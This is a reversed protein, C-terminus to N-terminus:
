YVHVTMIVTQAFMKTANSFTYNGQRVEPYWVCIIGSALIRDDSGGLRDVLFFRRSQAWPQSPHLCSLWPATGLSLLSSSPLPSCAGPATVALASASIALHRHLPPPTAPGPRSPPAEGRGQGFHHSCFLPLGERSSPHLPPRLSGKEFALLDTCSRLQRSGGSVLVRYLTPLIGGSFVARTLEPLTGGRVLSVVHFSVFPSCRISELASAALQKGPAM